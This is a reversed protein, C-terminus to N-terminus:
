LWPATVGSVATLGTCASFFFRESSVVVAAHPCLRSISLLLAGGMFASAEQSCEQLSRIASVHFVSSRACGSPPQGAKPSRLVCSGREREGADWRRVRRWLQPPESPLLYNSPPLPFLLGAPKLCLPPLPPHKHFLKSDSSM